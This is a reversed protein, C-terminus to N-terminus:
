APQASWRALLAQLAEDDRTVQVSRDSEPPLWTVPDAPAQSRLRLDRVEGPGSGTEDPFWVYPIGKKEAYAIQKGYKVPRPFVECPLGRERLARAIRASAERREDSVLAVLVCSPTKRSARLTGEHLVIGLIRTLGISLGVGPYKQSGVSALSDYRGGGLISPYRPFGTFRGELVTGTDYDLGRAVSLDAVV